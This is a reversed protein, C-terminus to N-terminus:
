AKVVLTRIRPSLQYVFTKETKKREVFDERMLEKLINNVSRVAHQRTKYKELNLSDALQGPTMAKILLEIINKKMPTMKELLRVSPAKEKREILMDPNVSERGEVIARNILENCLRIVERPFGGTRDYIMNMVNEDFPGPISGGVSEIRKRILERTEEKTLSLLEIRAMIRKRFTELETLNEEFIPLASIIILMNDAQDSLVRLWELVSKKAEHAEDLLIVLNKEKLKKNLFNPISNLNRINPIFLRLIRMILNPKFHENFIDIFEEPKNPSKGIYILNFGDQLNLAIWKLLSTKGSGTPGIVMSLKQKEEIARLIESKQEEYGVFLSPEITLKFPNESWGISQFFDKPTRKETEKTRKERKELHEEKNKVPEVKEVPEKKKETELIKEPVQIIEEKEEM